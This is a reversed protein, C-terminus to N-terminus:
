REGKRKSRLKYLKETIWKDFDKRELSYYQYGKPNDKSYVSVVDENVGIIEAMTKYGYRTHAMIIKNKM